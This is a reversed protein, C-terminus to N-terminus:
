RTGDAGGYEGFIREARDQDFTTTTTPERPDPSWWLKKDHHRVISGDDELEAWALRFTQDDDRRGVKAAAATKTKVPLVALIAARVSERTPAKARPPQEPRECSAVGGDMPSITLYVDPPEIAYRMKGADRCRLRRVLSADDDSERLLGFLADCQDKITTSGRYFKESDGKHHVLVIAAGTDRALKAVSGVLPAMDDSDNESTSPSLRRLSDLVVLNAGVDTVKGQLWALDEGRSLDLGMADIYEFAPEAIGAPRLRCDVFMKPGMEADVYLARGRTCPLGAVSAGRAVGTCFAQALWSKGSGAEGSLVTVTGDAVLDWVRWPVPKAPAALLPKLDVHRGDYRDAGAASGNRANQAVRGQGHTAVYEARKLRWYEEDVEYAAYERAAETEHELEALEADLEAHERDRATLERELAALETPHHGNGNLDSM